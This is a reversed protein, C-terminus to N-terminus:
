YKLAQVLAVVASVLYMISSISTVYITIRFKETDERRFYYVVVFVLITTTCMFVNRVIEFISM